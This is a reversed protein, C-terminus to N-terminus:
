NPHVQSNDHTWVIKGTEDIVVSKGDVIVSALGFRFESAGRYQPKIVIM